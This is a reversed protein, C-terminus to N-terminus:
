LLDDFKIEPIQFGATARAISDQALQQYTLEATELVPSTTLQQILSAVFAETQVEPCAQWQALIPAMGAQIAQVNTEGILAQQQAISLQSPDCVAELQELLQQLQQEAAQPDQEIEELSLGLLDLFLRMNLSGLIVKHQPLFNSSNVIEFISKVFKFSQLESFRKYSHVSSFEQALSELEEQSQQYDEPSVHFIATRHSDAPDIDHPYPSTFVESKGVLEPDPTIVYDALTATALRAENESTLRDFDAHLIADWQPPTHDFPPIFAITLHSNITVSYIDHYFPAMEPSEEQAQAVVSIRFDLDLAEKM